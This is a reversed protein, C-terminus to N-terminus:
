TGCPVIINKQELYKVLKDMSEQHNSIFDKHANNNTYNTVVFIGKVDIDFEKAISLVSFFEM